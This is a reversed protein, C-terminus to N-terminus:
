KHKNVFNTHFNKKMKLKDTKDPVYYSKFRSTGAQTILDKEMWFYLNLFFLCIDQEPIFEVHVSLSYDKIEAGRKLWSWMRRLRESKLSPSCVAVSAQIIVKHCSYIVTPGKKRVEPPHSDQWLEQGPACDPSYHTGAVPLSTIMWNWHLHRVLLFVDMNTSGRGEKM